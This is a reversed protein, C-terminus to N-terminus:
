GSALQTGPLSLAPWQLHYGTLLGQPLAPFPKCQSLSRLHCAKPDKGQWPSRPLRSDLLNNCHLQSPNCFEATSLCPAAWRLRVFSALHAPLPLSVAPSSGFCSGDVAGAGFCSSSVGCGASSYLPWGHKFHDTVCATEGPAGRKRIM